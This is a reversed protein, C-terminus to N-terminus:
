ATQLQVHYVTIASIRKMNKHGSPEVDLIVIASIDGEPIETVREAHGDAYVVYVWQSDVINIDTNHRTVSIANDCVWGATATYLSKLQRLDGTSLGDVLLQLSADLKVEKKVDAHAQRNTWGVGDPLYPPADIDRLWAMAVQGTPTELHAQIYAPLHDIEILDGRNLDNVLFYVLKNEGGDMMVIYDGTVVQQYTGATMPDGSTDSRWVICFGQMNLGLRLNDTQECKNKLIGM